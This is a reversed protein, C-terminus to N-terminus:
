ERGGMEIYTSFIEQGDTFEYKMEGCCVEQTRIGIGSLFKSIEKSIMCYVGNSGIGEYLVPVVPELLCSGIVTTILEKVGSQIEEITSLKDLKRKRRRNGYINGAKYIQRSISEMADMDGEDLHQNKEQIRDINELLEDFKYQLEDLIRNACEMSDIGEYLPAKDSIVIFDEDKSTETRYEKVCIKMTDRFFARVSELLEKNTELELREM